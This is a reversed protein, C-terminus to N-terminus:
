RFNLIRRIKADESAEKVAAYLTDEYSRQPNSHMIAIGSYLDIKSGHLPVLENLRSALEKSFSDAQERLRRVSLIGSSYEDLQVALFCDDGILRSTIIWSSHQTQYHILLQKLAQLIRDCVLPGYQKELEGFRKIDLYIIGVPHKKLHRAVQEGFKENIRNDALLMVYPRWDSM